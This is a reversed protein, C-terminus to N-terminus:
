ARGGRVLLARTMQNLPYGIMRARRFTHTHTHYILHFTDQSLDKVKKKHVLVGCYYYLILLIDYNPRFCM